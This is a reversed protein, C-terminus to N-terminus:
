YVIIDDVMLRSHRTVMLCNDIFIEGIHREYALRFSLIQFLTFFAFVVFLVVVSSEPDSLSKATIYSFFAILIM